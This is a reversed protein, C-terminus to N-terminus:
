KIIIIILSEKVDYQQHPELENYNKGYILNAVENLQKMIIKNIHKVASVITPLTMNYM